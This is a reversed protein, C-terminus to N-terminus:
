ATGFSTGGHQKLGHEDLGRLIRAHWSGFNPYGGALKPTAAQREVAEDEGLGFTHWGGRRSL